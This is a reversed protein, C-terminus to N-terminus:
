RLTVPWTQAAQNPATLPEVQMAERVPEPPHSMHWCGILAQQCRMLYKNKSNSVLRLGTLDITQITINLRGHEHPTVQDM